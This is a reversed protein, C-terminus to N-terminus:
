AGKVVLAPTASEAAALAAAVVPGLGELAIAFTQFAVGTPDPVAAGATAAATLGQCYAALATLATVLPPALAMPTTGPGLAVSTTSAGGITAIATNAGGLSASTTTADGISASTAGVLSVAGATTVRWQAGGVVGIVLGAAAATAEATAIPVILGQPVARWAHGGLKRVDVPMVTASGLKTIVSPDFDFAELTVVDNPKLNGALVCGGFTPWAVKVSFSPWPEGYPVDTDLDFRVDQLIPQVMAVQTMANYSIVSALMSIYVSGLLADTGASVVESVQVQREM